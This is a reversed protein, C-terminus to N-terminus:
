LLNTQITSIIGYRKSTTASPSHEQRAATSVNVATPVFLMMCPSATDDKVISPSSIDLVKDQEEVLDLFVHDGVRYDTALNQLECHGSKFCKTCDANHESLLLEIVHKRSTRVQKSNTFVEMGESVPTACSAALLRAGKIEVVCVRCNGAVNLDPHDCLTPIHIHLKRAAELITTGEEVVVPTNNIKLNVLYKSM